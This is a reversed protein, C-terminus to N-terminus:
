FWMKLLEGISDKSFNDLKNYVNKFGNAISFGHDGDGIETDLKSLYDKNEDIKRYINGLIKVIDEKNIEDISSM